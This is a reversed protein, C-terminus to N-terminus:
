NICKFTPYKCFYQAVSLDDEDNRGMIQSCRKIRSVNFTRAIDLVLLWYEDSKENIIDSSRKFEVKELDMGIAKWVEVLYEGVVKIKKLDGGMKNNMLAFWDAVLFIFKCGSKTMKNVNMAKMVGQAIHIRGSPEFGDYAIM